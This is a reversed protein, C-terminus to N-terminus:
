KGENLIIGVIPINYDFLDKSNKGLKSGLTKNTRILVAGDYKVSPISKRRENRYNTTNVLILDYFDALDELIVAKEKLSSQRVYDVGTYKTKLILNEDINKAGILTELDDTQKGSHDLVLVRKNYLSSMVPSINLISTTKGESKKESYVILTKLKQSSILYNIKTAIEDIGEGGMASISQM